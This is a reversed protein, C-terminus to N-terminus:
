GFGTTVPTKKMRTRLRSSPMLNAYQAGDLVLAGVEYGPLLDERGQVERGFVARQIDKAQLTGYSFLLMGALDLVFVFPAV